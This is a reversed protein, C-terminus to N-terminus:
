AASPAAWGQEGILPVFAVRGLSEVEYADEGKRTLKRLEQRGAEGVPMVLRGGLGLQRKLAEPVVPGSAAVLIADFPAADPWGLTGDGVRTEINGFGLNDFRRRAAAALSGHREVTYVKGAVRSAVAAAYGSGTGIELVREGRKVGAAAIMLAVVYPQSITQREGIGLPRDQFAEASSEPDVFMERPTLRM